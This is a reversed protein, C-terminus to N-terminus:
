YVSQGLVAAISRPGLGVDVNPPTLEITVCDAATFMRVAAADCPQMVILEANSVSAIQDLTLMGSLEIPELGFRSMVNQLARENVLRRRPTDKDSCYYRPRQGQVPRALHAVSARTSMVAEPWVFDISNEDDRYLPSSLRWVKAFHVPREGPIM